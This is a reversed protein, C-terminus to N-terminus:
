RSIDHDVREQLITEDYVEKLTKVIDELVTKKSNIGDQVLLNAWEILKAKM